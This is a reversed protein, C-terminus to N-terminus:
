VTTTVVWMGKWIGTRTFDNITLSASSAYTGTYLSTTAQGTNSLLTIQSGLDTESGNSTTGGGAVVVPALRSVAIDNGDLMDAGSGGQTRTMRDPQGACDAGTGATYDTLGCMQAKVSWTSGTALVETTLSTAPTVSAVDQGPTALVNVPAFAPAVATHTRSGGGQTEFQVLSTQAAALPATAVGIIAVLTGVLVLKRKM